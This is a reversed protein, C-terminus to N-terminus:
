ILRRSKGHRIFEVSRISPPPRCRRTKKEARADFDALRYERDAIPMIISNESPVDGANIVSSQLSGKLSGETKL